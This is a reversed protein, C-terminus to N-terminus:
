QGRPRRERRRWALSALLALAGSGDLANCGCGSAQVPPGVGGDTGGDPEPQDAGADLVAGADAPAGADAVVGADAVGSDSVGSDGAGSDPVGSDLGSDSPGGDEPGADVPDLDILEPVCDGGFCQGGDCGTGDAVPAYACTGNAGCAGPLQCVLRPCSVQGRCFAFGGSCQDGVTCALGDDCPTGADFGSASYCTGNDCMGVSACAVLCPTGYPRPRSYCYATSGSCTPVEFCSSAPSDCVVGADVLQDAPCNVDVGDCREEVDCAGLAARCSRGAVVSGCAGDILAGADASCALCDSADSAGCASDCCVGDACFGSQCDFAERCPSGLTQAVNVLPVATIRVANRVARNHVFSLMVSRDGGSSALGLPLGSWAPSRDLPDGDQTARVVYSGFGESVLTAVYSRGDFVVDHRGWRRQAAYALTQQSGLGGDNRLSWMGAQTTPLEVMVGRDGHWAAAVASSAPAGGFLGGDIMGGDFDLEQTRASTFVVARDQLTATVLRNVLDYQFWPDVQYPVPAPDPLQGNLAIRRGQQPPFGVLPVGDESWAVLFHDKLPIIGLGSYPSQSTAVEIPVSDLQSAGDFRIARVRTGGGFIPERWALLYTDGIAALVLDTPVASLTAVRKSTPSLRLGMPSLRNVEITVGARDDVWAVLYGNQNSAIAPLQQSNNRYNLPSPISATTTGADLTAVLARYNTDSLILAINEDGCTAPAASYTGPIAIPAVGGDSTVFAGKATSTGPELWTVLFGNQWRGVQPPYFSTSAKALELTPGSPVGREDLLVGQVQWGPTVQSSWVALSQKGYSALAPPSPNRVGGIRYGARSFPVGQLSVRTSRMFLEGTAGGWVLIFGGDVGAAAPFGPGVEQAVGGGNGDENVVRFRAGGIAQVEWWGLLKKEGSSAATVSAPRGLIVERRNVLIAGEAPDVTEWLLDSNSGAGAAFFYQGGGAM